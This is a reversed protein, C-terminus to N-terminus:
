ETVIFTLPVEFLHRQAAAAKVGSTFDVTLLAPIGGAAKATFFVRVTWHMPLAKGDSAPLVASFVSNQRASDDACLIETKEIGEGKVTLDNIMAYFDAETKAATFEIEAVYSSGDSLSFTQETNEFSLDVRDVTERAIKGERQKAFGLALGLATGAVAAALALALILTLTKKM